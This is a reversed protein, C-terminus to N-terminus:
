LKFFWWRGATPKGTAADQATRRADSVASAWLFLGLVVLGLFVLISAFSFLLFGAFQRHQLLAHGIGEGLTILTVAPVLTLTTAVLFFLAKRPQSNYLQGLGPIVSLGAAIRWDRHPPSSSM